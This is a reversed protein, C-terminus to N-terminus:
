EMLSNLHYQHIGPTNHARLDRPLPPTGAIQEATRSITNIAIVDNVGTEKWKIGQRPGGGGGSSEKVDNTGIIKRARNNNCLQKSNKEIESTNLFLNQRTKGWKQMM